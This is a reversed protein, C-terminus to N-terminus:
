SKYISSIPVKDLVTEAVLKMYTCMMANGPVNYALDNADDSPRFGTKIMGTSFSPKIQGDALEKSDRYFTYFKKKSEKEYAHDKTQEDIVTM